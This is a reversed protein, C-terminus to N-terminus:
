RSEPLTRTTSTLIRLGNAGLRWHWLCTPPFMFPLCKYPSFIRVRKKHCGTPGPFRLKTWSAPRRPIGNYVNLAAVRMLVVFNWGKSAMFGRGEHLWLLRRFNKKVPWNCGNLGKQCRSIRYSKIPPTIFYKTSWPHTQRQSGVREEFNCPLSRSSELLYCFCGLIQGVTCGSFISFYNTKAWKKHIYRTGGRKCYTTTSWFM